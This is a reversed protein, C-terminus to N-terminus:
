LIMLLIAEIRRLRIKRLKKHVLKKPMKNWRTSKVVRRFLVAILSNFLVSSQQYEIENYQLVHCVNVQM